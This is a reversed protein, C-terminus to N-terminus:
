CQEPAWILADRRARVWAGIAVQLGTKARRPQEAPDKVWVEFLLTVHRKYGENIGALAIERVMEREKEDVCVDETKSQVDRDLYALVMLTVIITAVGVLVRTILGDM